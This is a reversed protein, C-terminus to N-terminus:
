AAQRLGAMSSWLEGNTNDGTLTRQLRLGVVHPRPCVHADALGVHSLVVRRRAVVDAGEPEIGPSGCRYRM